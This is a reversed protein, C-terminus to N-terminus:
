DSVDFQGDGRVATRYGVRYEDVAGKLVAEIRFVLRQINREETDERTVRVRRLRPEYKEIATRIAEQVSHVYGEIDVPLDILAPLGYDPLAQSMEHRANLLRALHRRVSEMLAYVDEETTTEYPKRAGGREAIRELFTKERPVPPWRVPRAM